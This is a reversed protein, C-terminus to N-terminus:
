LWERSAFRGTLWDAQAAEVARVWQAPTVEYGGALVASDEAYQAAIAAVEELDDEPIRVVRRKLWARLRALM